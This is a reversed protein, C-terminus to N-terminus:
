DEIRLVGVSKGEYSMSDKKRRKKRGCQVVSTVSHTDVGSDVHNGQEDTFVHNQSGKSRGEASSAKDIDDYGSESKFCWGFCNLLKSLSLEQIPMTFVPESNSSDVDSSRYGHCSLM